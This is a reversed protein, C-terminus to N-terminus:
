PPLPNDSLLYAVLDRLEEPKKVLGGPMPSLLSVRREDVEKKAVTQRTADPLLLELRDDTEAVVLGTIMRGSTTVLITSRFPEAVQKGPLLISEVLYPVTFRKRAEALSPAGGGKQDPTTAHCKACGLSGFLRRGQAADGHRVEPLWDVTLFEPPIKDGAGSGAERLRRALLSSDLKEPLTATVDQRARYHLDLPRGDARGQVRVLLDNSGPQLDLPIRASEGVRAPDSRGVPSGNHWVRVAKHGQFVLLAPQRSVSQLRFYM